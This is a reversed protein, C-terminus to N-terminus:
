VVPHSRAFKVEHAECVHGNRFNAVTYAWMPKALLETM